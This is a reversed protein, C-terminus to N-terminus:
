YGYTSENIGGLKLIHKFQKSDINLLSWRINEPLGITEILDNRIIRKDLAVNYLMKIICSHKYSWYDNIEEKNLVTYKKCYDYFSEFSNFFNISKVEDVVLISTAVANYKASKGEEKTRYIVILDGKNCSLLDKNKSLYIKQISNTYSIDKTALKKETCLKSDPFLNTHYKPYVSLLYKKSNNIEFKPYDLYIDKKIKDFRKTYVSESKKNGHFEFGFSKLLKVLSEHKEFITVYLGEYGRNLAIDLMIKIFREGLKTGHAEVKFTGVKLWKIEKLTPMIDTIPHDEKKLYLFGKVGNEELIFAGDGNKSKKLYWKEFEPYDKKLSDFFPDGLNIDKFSKYVISKERM